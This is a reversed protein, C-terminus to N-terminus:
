IDNSHCHFRFHILRNNFLKYGIKQIVHKPGRRITDWNCVILAIFPATFILSEPFM